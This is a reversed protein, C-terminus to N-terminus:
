KRKEFWQLITECQTDDLHKVKVKKGALGSLLYLKINSVHGRKQFYHHETGISQIHKRDVITTYHAIWRYSLSIQNGNIHFGASRHCAIGNWIALVVLLFVPFLFPKWITLGAAVLLSLIAKLFVFRRRSKKPAHETIEDLSYQPVLSALLSPIKDKKIFPHLIINHIKSDKMSVVAEIEVKAYGFLSRFIGEEITIGQIRKHQLSVNRKELLGSSIQLEKGTSIARFGFYKFVFHLTSVGWSFILFAVALIGWFLFSMSQLHSMVGKLFSDPIWDNVESWIGMLAVFLFGIQGSTAGALIMEKGTLRYTFAEEEKEITEVQSLAQETKKEKLLTMIEKATEKPVGYLDIEPEGGGATEVIVSEIDLIQHFLSANASVSQVREPKVFIEKKVFIGHKVYLGDKEIRYVYYFWKATYVLSILVIVGIAILAADLFSFGNNKKFSFVILPVFGWIVNKLFALTRFLITIPHERRNNM